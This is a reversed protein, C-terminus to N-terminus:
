IRFDYTEKTDRKTKSKNSRRSAREGKCKGDSMLGYRSRQGQVQWQAKVYWEAKNTRQDSADIEGKAM